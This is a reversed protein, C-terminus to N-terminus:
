DDDEVDNNAQIKREVGKNDEEDEEVGNEEAGGGSGEADTIIPVDDLLDLDYRDIRPGIHTAFSFRPWESITVSSFDENMYPFGVEASLPYIVSLHELHGRTLDAITRLVRVWFRRLIYNYLALGFAPRM